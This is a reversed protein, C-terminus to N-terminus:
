ESEYSLPPNLTTVDTCGMPQVIFTDRITLVREPGSTFMTCLIPVGEYDSNPDFDSINDSRGSEFIKPFEIRDPFIKFM